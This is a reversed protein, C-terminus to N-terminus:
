MQAGPVWPVFEADGMGLAESKTPRGSATELLLEFIEGGMEEVSAAGDAISGCNVDMDGIMREYLATNTAIKISPAPICGYVSGRGTTFAVLNAGSAVQGTISMPDYGPSDMLVLGPQDVPEAYRYVGALPTQGGKAVAGLSKELITTLGGAKNGHTPNNDIRSDNRAAYDEWWRILDKLKGAVEDSVSRSMLLHEAGYIEPTESLIATGGQRVLRDVAAGLAPNATIGSYGDSGGCELGLILEAAPIQERQVDNARELMGGVIERGRRVTATTGGAEQIVLTQLNADESLGYSECLASLQNTECGLGLLLVGAFNPHRAFGALTRELQRMGQEEAGMCCGSGHTLSVVGDVNPFPDMAAGRFADAIYDAVSASCNVSTIIGVYNRTAARGNARRIGMFSRTAVRAGAAEPQREWSREFEHMALNHTHLHCGPAIDRIATGIVQGYKTVPEGAAIACVAVKHGAPIAETAQVARDLVASGPELRRLAVAVNDAPNLQM